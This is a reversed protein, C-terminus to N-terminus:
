KGLVKPKVYMVGGQYVRTAALAKLVIDLADLASVDTFGVTIRQDVKLLRPDFIINRCGTCFSLYGLLQRVDWEDRPQSISRPTMNTITALWTGNTESYALLEPPISAGEVSSSVKLTQNAVTASVDALHLVWSLAHRVTIGDFSGCFTLMRAEGTEVDDLCAPEIKVEYGARYGLFKICNEITWKQPSMLSVQVDLDVAHSSNCWLAACLLLTVRTKMDTNVLIV